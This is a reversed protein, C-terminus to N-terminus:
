QMGFYAADRFIREVMWDALAYVYPSSSVAACLRDSDGSGVRITRVSGDGLELIIRGANLPLEAGESPSIIDEGEADLIARVYIEVQQKDPIADSGLTWGGADGNRTFVLSAPVLAPDEASADEGPAERPVPATVTLRQVSEPSLQEDPFLRLNYWATPSGTLYPSFRDEGSRVENRNNRRLYVESGTSDERGILLDLLPVGAGGRVVIRSATEETLALREYSAPSSGRVPYNYRGSLLRLFDEIRTQRAPYEEGESFVFWKEGRRVLIVREGGASGTIELGDIQEQWQPDLWVYAANRGGIRDTDFIFSLAYILSLVGILGLLVRIKTKYLM